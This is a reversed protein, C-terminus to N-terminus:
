TPIPAEHPPLLADFSQPLLRPRRGLGLVM